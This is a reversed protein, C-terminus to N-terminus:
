QGMTFLKNKFVRMGLDLKSEAELGVGGKRQSTRRRTM